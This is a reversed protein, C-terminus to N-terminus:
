QRPPIARSPGCASNYFGSEKAMALTQAAADQAAATSQVSAAPATGSMGDQLLLNLFIVALAAAAALLIATSRRRRPMETKIGRGGINKSTM